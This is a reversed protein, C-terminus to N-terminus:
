KRESDRSFNDVDLFAIFKETMIVAGTVEYKRSFIGM